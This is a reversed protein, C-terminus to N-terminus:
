KIFMKHRLKQLRTYEDSNDDVFTVKEWAHYCLHLRARMELEDGSFGLDKFIIRLFDLRMAVVKKVIENVLPDVKAWGNMALDYQALKKERVMQMTIFLRKEADFKKMDLSATIVATYENAWYDLLHQM